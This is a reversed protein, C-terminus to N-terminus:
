QLLILRIFMLYKISNPWNGYYKEALTVKCGFNECKLM